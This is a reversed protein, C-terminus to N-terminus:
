KKTKQQQSMRKQRPSMRKQRPSMRKSKKFVTSNIPSDYEDVYIRCTESWDTDTTIDDNEIPDTPEKNYIYEILNHDVDIWHVCDSDLDYIFGHQRISM